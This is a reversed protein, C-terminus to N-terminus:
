EILSMAKASRLLGWPRAPADCDGKKEADENRYRFLERGPCWFLRTLAPSGGAQRRRPVIILSNRRTTQSRAPMRAAVAVFEGTRHAVTMDGPGFVTTEEALPGLHAAESGFSITGPANGTLESLRASLRQTPSPAFAPDTRKVKFDANFGPVSDALMAILRRISEPVEDADGGPIPRWEVTLRCEGPVINKATGGEILGVNLTTFPPDFGARLNGELEKALSELCILLRAADYVASHGEAPFASHAERGFVTITGLSYGKGAVVPRLGTPEGIVRHRASFAKM